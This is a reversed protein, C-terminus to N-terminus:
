FRVQEIALYQRIFDLEQRLPVEQARTDELVYRLLDSLEALTRVADDNEQKRVMMAVTNMANFLFHPNLQMRLAQLQANALQQSLQSAALEREQYRRYFDIAYSGGLIAAYSLLNITLQWTSVFLIIGWVSVSAMEEPVTDAAFLLLVVVVTSALGLGLAAGLHTPVARLLSGRMLPVRTGLWAVWPAVAAWFYWPTVAWLAMFLLPVSTGEARFGLWMQSFSLSALVTAGAFLAVRRRWVSAGATIPSIAM